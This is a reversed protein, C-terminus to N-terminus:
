PKPLTPFETHLIADVDTWQGERVDAVKTEETYGPFRFTVYHIGVPVDSIMIPTKMIKGSPYIAPTGDIYIEANDPVSYAM